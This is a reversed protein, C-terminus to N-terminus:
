AIGLIRALEDVEKSKMGSVRRLKLGHHYLQAHIIQCLVSM